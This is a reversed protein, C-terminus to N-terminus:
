TVIVTVTNCTSGVFKTSSWYIATFTYDGPAFSEVTLTATTVRNVTQVSTAALLQNGVLLTVTGNPAVQGSGPAITVTFTVTPFFTKPVVAGTPKATTATLASSKLLPLLQDNRATVEQVLFGGSGCSSNM